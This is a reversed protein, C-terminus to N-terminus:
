RIPYEFYANPCSLETSFKYGGGCGQLFNWSGVSYVGSANSRYVTSDLTLSEVYLNRDEPPAYYDNTFYVRLNEALTGKYVYVYDRYDSTVTWSALTAGSALRLEMRAEEGGAFSGKARVSITQTPNPSAPSPSAASPSAPAVAPPTTVKGGGSGSGSGSSAKVTVPVDTYIESDFTSYLRMTTSGAKYAILHWIVGDSEQRTIEAGQTRYKVSNPGQVASNKRAPNLNPVSNSGWFNDVISRDFININTSDKKGDSYLTWTNIGFRWGVQLKNLDIGNVPSYGVSKITKTIPMTITVSFSPDDKAYVKVKATGIGTAEVAVGNGWICDVKKLLNPTLIESEVREDSSTGDAYNVQTFYCVSGKVPWGSGAYDDTFDEYSGGVWLRTVKPAIRFRQENELFFSQSGYELKKLQHYGVTMDKTIVVEAEGSDDLAYIRKDMIVNSTQWFTTIQDNAVQRRSWYPKIKFKDGVKLRELDNDSSLTVGTIENVEVVTFSPAGEGLDTYVEARTNKIARIQYNGAAVDASIVHSSNGQADQAAFSAVDIAGAPQTEGPRTYVIKVGVSIDGFPQGQHDLTQLIFGDGEKMNNLTSGAAPALRINSPNPVGAGQSDEAFSRTLAVSLGSQRAAGFAGAGFLVMGAAVLIIVQFKQQFGNEM